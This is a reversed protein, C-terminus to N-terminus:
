ILEDITKLLTHSGAHQNATESVHLAFWHVYYQRQLELQLLTYLLRKRMLTEAVLNKSIM